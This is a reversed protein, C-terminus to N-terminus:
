RQPGPRQLLLRLGRARHLPLDQRQEGGAAQRYRDGLGVREVLDRRGIVAERAAALEALDDDRRLGWRPPARERAHRGRRRLPDTKSTPRTASRSSRPRTSRASTRGARSSSPPWSTRPSSRAASRAASEPRRSRTNRSTWAPSLLAGSVVPPSESAIM